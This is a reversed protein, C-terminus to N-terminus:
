NVATVRCGVRHLSLDLVNVGEDGLAAWAEGSVVCHAERCRWFNILCWGSAAFTVVVDLVLCGARTALHPAASIGAAVAAFFIWQGAGTPLV